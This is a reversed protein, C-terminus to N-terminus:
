YTHIVIITNAYIYIHKVNCEFSYPNMIIPGDLISM